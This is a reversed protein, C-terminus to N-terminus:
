WGDEWIGRPGGFWGLLGVGLGDGVVNGCVM